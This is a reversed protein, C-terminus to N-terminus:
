KKAVRAMVHRLMPGRFSVAVIVGSFGESFCTEKTQTSMSATLQADGKECCIQHIWAAGKAALYVATALQGLSPPNMLVM